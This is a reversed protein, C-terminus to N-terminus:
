KISRILIFAEAATRGISYGRHNALCKINEYSRSHPPDIMELDYAQLAKIKTNLYSGIDVYYNPMFSNAGTLAWDTSSMVEFAYIEKVTQSPIPRCATMVAQFTIRHDINLDGYYHTYIIEPKLKRIIKELMQVIELLPIADMRNDPLDLYISEKIGLINQANNAAVHRGTIEKSNASGRSTVGDAMYVASVIDGEAVHRSITGGCGLVEDDSHAAVILINKSM